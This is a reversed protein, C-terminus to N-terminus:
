RIEDSMANKYREREEESLCKRRGERREEREEAAASTTGVGGGFGVEVVSIAWTLARAVDMLVRMKGLLVFPFRLKRLFSTPQDISPRRLLLVVVPLSLLIIM